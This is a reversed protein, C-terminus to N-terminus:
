RCWHAGIILLMLVVQWVCFDVGSSWQALVDQITRTVYPYVMDVLTSYREALRGMALAIAGLVAATVYGAWYKLPVAEKAIYTYTRINYCLSTM